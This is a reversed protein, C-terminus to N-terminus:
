TTSQELSINNVTDTHPTTTALPWNGLTNDITLWCVLSNCLELELAALPRNSLLTSSALQSAKPNEIGVPDILNTVAPKYKATTQTETTM